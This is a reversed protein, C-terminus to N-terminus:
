LNLAGGKQWHILQFAEQSIIICIVKTVKPLCKCYVKNSFGCRDIVDIALLNSLELM